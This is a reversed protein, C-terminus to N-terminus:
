TELPQLTLVIGWIQWESEPESELPRLQSEPTSEKKVLATAIWYYKLITSERNVQFDPNQIPERNM